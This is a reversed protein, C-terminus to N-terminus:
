DILPIEVRFFDEKDVIVLEEDTLIKLRKSLNSLGTHTSYTTEKLQKNNEVFLWDEEVGIQILLPKSKSTVNHKIANEVLVQLSLHPIKKEKTKNDVKIEVSLGGGVRIKHLRTYAYIFEVEDGVSVAVQGEKTLVYRYVDTFCEAFVVAKDPDSRIIAILTSLNNFLFHPNLQDQLVKYDCILKDQKLKENEYLYFKLSEHFNYAIICVVYIIMYLFSIIISIRYIEPDKVLNKMFLLQLRPVFYKATFFLILSFISLAIVRKRAFCSWPYYRSIIRDYFFLIETFGFFIFITFLYGDWQFTIKGVILRFVIFYFTTAIFSSMFFRRKFSLFWETNIKRWHSCKEDFGSLSAKYMVKM